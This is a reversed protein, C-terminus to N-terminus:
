PENTTLKWVGFASHLSFDLNPNLQAVQKVGPWGLLFFLDTSPLFLVGKPLSSDGTLAATRM